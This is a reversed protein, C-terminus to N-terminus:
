GERHINLDVQDADIGISRAWVRFVGRLDRAVRGGQGILRGRDQRSPLHAWFLHVDGHPESVIEQSVRVEDDRRNSVLACLRGVFSACRVLQADDVPAAHPKGPPDYTRRM